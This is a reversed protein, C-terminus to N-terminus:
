MAGEYEPELVTECAAAAKAGKCFLERIRAANRHVDFEAEILKRANGALEASRSREALIERIAGALAAADNQPVILGTRGHLVIEPIGTVDTSVCPTGLAMAELLVTPLGDRDGDDSIVCPAAFVSAQCLSEIVERQPRPGRLEVVSQLGLEEIQARLASELQGGGILQCQFSVGQDALLRCASVLVDFGKKRVFRGVALVVPKRNEAPCFRYSDLDLGNYVRTVSSAARGYTEQLYRVNFESVTVVSSATRLKHTLQEADVDEHFLDKAHGTMSWTIGALRAAISAVTAASTAFHAHLHSIRRRHVAIALRVAQWVEDGGAWEADGLRSWFDPLILAAEQLTSWFLATRVGGSQIVNGGDPSTRDLYTLPARVLSIRDQFHTDSPARLSFIEIEQGAAEHALIENVIFTESFRPYRKVVYGVRFGETDQQEAFM